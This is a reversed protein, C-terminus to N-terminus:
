CVTLALDANYLIGKARNSWPQAPWKVPFVWIKQGAVSVLDQRYGERDPEDQGNEESERSGGQNSDLKKLTEAREREKFKIQGVSGLYSASLIMSRMFEM